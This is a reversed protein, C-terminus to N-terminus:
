MSIRESNSLEWHPADPARLAETCSVWCGPVAKSPRFGLAMGVGRKLRGEEDCLGAGEM